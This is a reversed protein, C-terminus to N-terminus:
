AESSRPSELASRAASLVREAPRTYLPIGAHLEFVLGDPEFSFECRGQLESRTLGHILSLGVGEGRQQVCGGTRESWRLKFGKGESEPWWAVEIEGPRNEGNADAEAPRSERMAGHKLSNTFLEQVIMALASARASAIAGDSSRLTVRQAADEGLMLRALRRVLQPVEVDRGEAAAIMDHVESMARLKGEIQALAGPENSRRYLRVLGLLGTLNNRVRHDLERRLARERRALEQQYELGERVRAEAAKVASIDSVAGLYGLRRGQEDRLLKASAIVWVVTGDPRRYRYEANFDTGTQAAHRFAESVRDLDEPHIAARWGQGRGQEPTLGTLEMWHTNVYVNQGDQDTQFIAVPPLQVLTQFKRVSAQLEQESERLETIDMGVSQYEEVRGAADFIARDTWRQWRVSGDSVIVRHEVTVAPNEATVRELVDTVVHRDSDPIMPVFSNGVLEERTKGFCRCYAENVFTITGDPKWRCIYETQMEIMARSRQESLRLAREAEKRDTINTMFCFHGSGEGCAVLAMRLDVVSGDARVARLECEVRGQENLRAMAEDVRPLDDPHVTSRWSQGIMERADRGLMAAYAPNVLTFRGEADKRAIGDLSAGLVVRLDNLDQRTQREEEIDKSAGSLWRPRGQEDRTISAHSRIWRYRGDDGRIRFDVSYRGGSALTQDTAEMMRAADAPHVSADFWARAHEIVESNLGMIERARPSHYVRDTVIDWEWIGEGTALVARAYRDNSGRLEREVSELTDRNVGAARVEQQLRSSTRYLGAALVVCALCGVFQMVAFGIRGTQCCEIIAQVLAILGVACIVVLLIRTARLGPAGTGAAGTRSGAQKTGAVESM